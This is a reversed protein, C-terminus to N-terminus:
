ITLLYSTRNRQYYENHYMLMQRLNSFRKGSYAVSGEEIATESRGYDSRKMVDITFATEMDNYTIPYDLTIPVQGYIFYLKLSGDINFNMRHSDMDQKFWILMNEHADTLDINDLWEECLVWLTNLSVPTFEPMIVLKNSTIM